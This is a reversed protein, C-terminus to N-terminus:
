IYSDASSIYAWRSSPELAIKQTVRLIDFTDSGRSSDQPDSMYGTYISRPLLVLVKM